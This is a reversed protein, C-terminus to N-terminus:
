VDALRETVHRPNQAPVTETNLPSSISRIPANNAPTLSLWGVYPSDEGSVANSVCLCLSIGLTQVVCTSSCSSLPSFLRRVAKRKCIM